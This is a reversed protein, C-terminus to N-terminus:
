PCGQGACWGVFTFGAALVFFAYGSVRERGRLTLKHGFTEEDTTFTFGRFTEEWGLAVFLAAVLDHALPFSLMLFAPIMLWHAGAPGVPQPPWPWVACLPGAALAWLAVFAIASVGVALANRIWRM